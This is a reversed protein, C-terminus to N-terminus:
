QMSKICIYENKEWPSLNKGRPKLLKRKLRVLGNGLCVGKWARQSYDVVWLHFIGKKRVIRLPAAM